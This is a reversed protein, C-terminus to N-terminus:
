RSPAPRRSRLLRWLVATERLAVAVDVIGLGSIAGRVWGSALFPAPGKPNALDLVAQDYIASWPALVLFAGVVAFVYANLATKLRVDM